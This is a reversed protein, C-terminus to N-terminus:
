KEVVILIYDIEWSDRLGDFFFRFSFIDFNPFAALGLFVLLFYLPWIRLIRRVYFNKLNIKSALDIETFLLYTILFGSLVFFLHVGLKGIEFIAPISKWYNPMGFVGKIQESHHIFVLFAAIFRLGNLNPFHITSKSM